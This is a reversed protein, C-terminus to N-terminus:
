EEETELLKACGKIKKGKDKKSLEACKEKLQDYRTDEKNKTTSDEGVDQFVNQTDSSDDDESKKKKKKPSTKKEEENTSSSEQPTSEKLSSSSSRSYSRNKYRKDGVFGIRNPDSIINTIYNHLSTNPEILIIGDFPIRNTYKNSKKYKKGPKYNYTQTTQTPYMLNPQQSSFSGYQMPNGYQGPGCMGGQQVPMGYQSPGYMGGQQMPMGNQNFYMNSTQKPLVNSSFNSNTSCGSPGSISNKCDNQRPCGDKCDDKKCYDNINVIDGQYSCKKYSKMGLVPGKMMNCFSQPIPDCLNNGGSSCSSASGGSGMMNNSFNSPSNMGQYGGGDQYNMSQYRGGDQYNMGQYGGGQYGGSMYGGSQYGGSQYKGGQYGGGPCDNGPYRSAYPNFSSRNSTFMASQMTNPAPGLGTYTMADLCPIGTKTTYNLDNLKQYVVVM